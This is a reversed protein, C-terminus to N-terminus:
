VYNGSSRTRACGQRKRSTLGLCTCFALLTKFSRLTVMRGVLCVNKIQCMYYLFMGIGVVWLRSLFFFLVECNGM